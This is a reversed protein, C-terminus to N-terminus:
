CCALAQEVQEAYLREGLRQLIALAQEFHARAQAAEGQQAAILGAGYHAKAEDYPCPISQALALMEVLAQEATHWDQRRAAVLAQVYRVDTLALRMQRERILTAAQDVLRQAQAVHGLELHAWAIFPLIYLIGSEEPSADELLPTLRDRAQQSRGHLLDYAALFSRANCEAERDHDREALVLGEALLALGTEEQGEALLQLGLGALPYTAGWPLGVQRMLAIAREYEQRAEQWQGMIFQNFALVSLMQALLFPDGMQEALALAQEAYHTSQRLDGQNERVQSLNNLIYYLDRLDGAQEALPLAAEFQPVAEGPRGLLLLSRGIHWLAKGLLHNDQAQRALDAAQQAAALAEQYRGSNMSLYALTMSLTGQQQASVTGAQPSALWSEVLAIGTAAAGRSAHLQGIKAVVRAQGESDGASRYVALAEELVAVAESYRAGVGLVGALKEQVAAVQAPLGLRRLTQVVDLYAREAEQQAYMARARDGARELYVVAKELLGAQRFHYALREIPPEDAARELAEAVQQHLMARRVASLDAMVVERILDHAFSYSEEDQELLLRAHCILDVAALIDRQGWELPAALAILLSYAIERGAVAAAGLLYQAPEPLVAVRQRISDAVNQPLAAEPMTNAQTGAAEAQLEEACSVLFYPVGGARALLRSVAPAREQEKLDALLNSLLTTAEQANLPGLDIREALQERGLDTLLLGLPEAQGVETQRYAGVVRLGSSQASRVLSALLDLADAGAWQMDDLVLLTGAPGASNALFRAVAAFMLRREQAPPLSWDPASLLAAEALEPLLRVLWGCEALRRQQEDPPWEALGATLAAMFPAYPEQGSRRHCGGTFICLGQAQGMLAAEQLLRTKGIGPEGSLWLLPPGEGALHHALQARETARGVLAPLATRAPATSGRLRSLPRVTTVPPREAAAELAAYESPSLLLAEALLRVTLPLPARTGQELKSLYTVSYGAQEALAEQTLGAARRYRKLLAAFPLPAAPPEM